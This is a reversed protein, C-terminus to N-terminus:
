LPHTPSYTACCCVHPAICKLAMSSDLGPQQHVYLLMTKCMLSQKSCHIEKSPNLPTKCTRNMHKSADGPSGKRHPHRNM